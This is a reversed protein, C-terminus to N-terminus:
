LATKSSTLISIYRSFFLSRSIKHSQQEINWWNLNLPSEVAHRSKFIAPYQDLRGSQHPEPFRKEPDNAPEVTQKVWNLNAAFTEAM